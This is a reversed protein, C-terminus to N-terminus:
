IKPPWYIQSILFSTTCIIFPNLDLFGEFINIEFLVDKVKPIISFCHNDKEDVVIVKTTYKKTSRKGRWNREEETKEVNM